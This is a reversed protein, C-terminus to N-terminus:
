APTKRLRKIVIPILSALGLAGLAILLDTTIINGVELSIGCPANGAAVCAEYADAQARVISDLGEGAYAYAFTGPAIGVLTTWFYTAFPVGLLGPVINVLTFPFVPTLRLFLMYSVSDKQFGDRMRQVYGKANKRMHEGLSTKAIFFLISAGITAAFITALGGLWWGFLLGGAVTLVWAAPFSVAVAAAYFVMYLLIAVVLNDVVFQSMATYNQVLAEISLWKYAGSLYLGAIVLVLLALPLWRKILSSQNSTLLAM